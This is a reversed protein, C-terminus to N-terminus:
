TSGDAKGPRCTFRDFQKDRRDSPAQGQRRGRIRYDEDQSPWLRRRCERDLRVLRIRVQALAIAERGGLDGEQSLDDFAVAFLGGGFPAVDAVGGGTGM